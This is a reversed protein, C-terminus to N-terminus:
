SQMDPPATVWKAQYKGLTANWDRVYVQRPKVPTPTPIPTPTPVPAPASGGTTSGVEFGLGQLESLSYVAGKYKALKNPTWVNRGSATLQGDGIEYMYRVVQFNNDFVRLAGTGGVNTQKIGDELSNGTNGTIHVTGGGGDGTKFLAWVNRINNRRIWLDGEFHPCFAIGILASGKGDIINDEVFCETGSGEIQVGDDKFDSITNRRIMTRKFGGWAVDEPETGIGDFGGTLTCDEILCNDLDETKYAKGWICNGTKRPSTIVAQRITVWTSGELMVGACYQDDQAITNFNEVRFNELIINGVAGVKIAERVSDKVIFNKVTVNPAQVELYNFVQGTLDYIGSTTITKNM